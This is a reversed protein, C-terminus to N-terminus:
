GPMLLLSVLMAIASSSSSLSPSFFVSTLSDFSYHSNALLVRIESAYQIFQDNCKYKLIIIVNM